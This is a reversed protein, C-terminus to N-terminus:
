PAGRQQEAEEMQAALATIIPALGDTGPRAPTAAAAARQDERAQREARKTITEETAIGWARLEDVRMARVREYPVARAKRTASGDGEQALPQVRVRDPSISVVRCPVDHEAGGRRIRRWIVFQDPRLDTEIIRNAITTADIPGAATFISITRSDYDPALNNACLVYRKGGNHVLTWGRGRSAAVGAGCTELQLMDREEPPLDERFKLVTM